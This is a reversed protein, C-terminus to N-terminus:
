EANDEVPPNEENEDTFDAEESSSGYEDTAQDDEYSSEPGSSDFSDDAASSEQGDSDANDPAGEERKRSYSVALKRGRYESENLASIVAEADDTLVQVFSYNDLVRIEGIHEREIQATQMILGILDRPFVRRNRGISVFLTTSVDEPLVPRPESVRAESSRESLRAKRNSSANDESRSGREARPNERPAQKGGRQGNESKEQRPSRDNRDKRSSRDERGSRGGRGNRSTSQLKAPMVGEDLQKIVWAAFYARLTFPVAKRFLRRYENLELPDIETKIANVGNQLFALIQDENLDPKKNNAM